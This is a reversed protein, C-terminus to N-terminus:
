RDSARDQLITEHEFKELAGSVRYNDCIVQLSLPGQKKNMNLSKCIKPVRAASVDFNIFESTMVDRLKVDIPFAPKCTTVTCEISIFM